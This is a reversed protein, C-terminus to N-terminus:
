HLTVIVTDAGTPVVTLTDVKDWAPSWFLERPVLDRVYRVQVTDRDGATADWSTLLVIASGGDALVSAGTRGVVNIETAETVVEDSTAALAIASGLLIAAVIIFRYM